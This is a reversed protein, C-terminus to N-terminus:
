DRREPTLKSGSPLGEETQKMAAQIQQQVMAPVMTKMSQMQQKIRMVEFLKMLQETKAQNEPAILAAPKEPHMTGDAGVAVAQASGVATTFWLLGVAVLGLIGRGNM